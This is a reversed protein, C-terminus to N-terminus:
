LEIHFFGCLMPYSHQLLTVLFKMEYMVWNKVTRQIAGVGCSRVVKLNVCRSAINIPTCFTQANIVKLVNTTGKMISAPEPSLKTLRTSFMNYDQCQPVNLIPRYGKSWSSLNAVM